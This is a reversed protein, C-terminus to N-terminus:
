RHCRAGLFGEKLKNEFARKKWESKVHRVLPAYLAGDGYDLCFSDERKEREREKTSYFIHGKRSIHRVM